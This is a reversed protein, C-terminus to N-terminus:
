SAISAPAERLVSLVNEFWSRDQTSIDIGDIFRDAGTERNRTYISAQGPAEIELDIYGNTSSWYFGIEGEYSLMLSPLELGAPYSRIFDLAAMTAAVNPGLSGEGGWGDTLTLYRYLESAIRVVQTPFQNPSFSYFLATGTQGEVILRNSREVVVSAGANPSVDWRPAATAITSAMVTAYLFSTLPEM